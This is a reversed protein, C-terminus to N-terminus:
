KSQKSPTTAMTENANPIGKNLTLHGAPQKATFMNTSRNYVMAGSKRSQGGDSEMTQLKAAQNFSAMGPGTAIQHQNRGKAGWQASGLSRYLSTTAGGGATSDRDM